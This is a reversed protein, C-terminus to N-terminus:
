KIWRGSFGLSKAIRSYLTGVHRLVADAAYWWRVRCKVASHAGIIVGEFGAGWMWVDQKGDTVDLVTGDIYGARM